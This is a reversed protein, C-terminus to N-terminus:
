LNDLIDMLENVYKLNQIPNGKMAEKLMQSYISRKSPFPLIIQLISSTFFLIILIIIVLWWDAIQWLLYGIGIFLVLNLLVIIGVYTPTIIQQVDSNSYDDSFLRSFNRTENQFRQVYNSSVIYLVILSLLVIQQTEMAILIKKIFKYFIINIVFFELSNEPTKLNKSASSRSCTEETNEAWKSFRM